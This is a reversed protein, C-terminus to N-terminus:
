LQMTCQVGRKGQFCDSPDFGVPGSESSARRTQDVSLRKSANDITLVSGELFSLGVILLHADFSPWPVDVPTTIPDSARVELISGDEAPFRVRVDAWPHKDEKRRPRNATASLEEEYLERSMTFGTTGTDFIVYVKKGGTELARNNSVVESAVCAYHQVPDGYPRLDVLPAAPLSSASAPLPPLLPTRSLTLSKLRRSLDIRLSVFDTQGLFTPRIDLERERVLGLFVGGPRSVLSSSLVGFTLPLGGRIGPVAGLAAAASGTANPFTILGQRWKVIGEKAAFVEWTPKLDSATGEGAFCGWRKTCSGAVTFFPSGTDVVARFPGHNDINFTMCYSGGCYFLPVM